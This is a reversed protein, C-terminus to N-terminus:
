DSLMSECYGCKRCAGGQPKPYWCSIAYKLFEDYGNQKAKWLMEKKTMKTVPFKMYKFLQIDSPAADSLVWNPLLEGYYIMNDDPVLYQDITAGLSKNASEAFETYKNEVLQNEPTVASPDEKSEDPKANGFLGCYEMPIKYFRSIVAYKSSDRVDRSLKGRIYLQNLTTKACEDYEAKYIVITPLILKACFPYKEIVNRKIRGFTALMALADDHNHAAASFIPDLVIVPQVPVREKIVLDLFRYTSEFRGTWFLHAVNQGGVKTIFNDSAAVHDGSYYWLYIIILLVALLISATYIDLKNEFGM